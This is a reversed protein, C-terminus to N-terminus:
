IIVPGLIYGLLFHARAGKPNVQISQRCASVAAELQGLDDLVDCLSQYAESNRPELQVVQRWLKAAEDYRQSAQAAQAQEVLQGATQGQAPLPVM